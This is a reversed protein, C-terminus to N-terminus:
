VVIGPKNCGDYVLFKSIYSYCSSFIEKELTFCPLYTTIWSVLLFPWSFSPDLTILLFCMYISWLCSVLHFWDCTMCFSKPELFLMHSLFPYNVSIRPCLHCLTFPLMCHMGSCPCKVYAPQLAHLYVTQKTLHWM